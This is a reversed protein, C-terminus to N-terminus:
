LLFGYLRHRGCWSSPPTLSVGGWGGRKGV